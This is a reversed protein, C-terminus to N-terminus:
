KVGFVSKAQQINKINERPKLKKAANLIHEEALNQTRQDMQDFGALAKRANEDSSSLFNAYSRAGASDVETTSGDPLFVTEKGIGERSVKEAKVESWGQEQTTGALYALADGRGSNRYAAKASQKALGLDIDNAGAAKANALAREVLQGSGKGNESLYQAAALHSTAKNQHGATLMRTFQSQQTKSLGEGKSNKWLKMKNADGGTSAWAAVLDDDNGFMGMAEQADKRNQAQATLNRQAGFGGSNDNIKRNGWTRGNELYRRPDAKWRDSKYNGAKIRANRDAAQAENYKNYDSNKYKNGGWDSFNSGLGSLKTGIGGVGDISKKLLGPVTFLPVVLMTASVISGLFPHQSDSDSSSFVQGLIISAFTSAGFVVAVIPFLMLMTVLTDKWKNFWTVTNPLLFAVFALPSIVILIIIIAQRAVLIFLTMIIAVLAALLAPVAISLSGWAIAGGVLVITGGIISTWDSGSGLSTGAGPNAAAAPALGALFGKLSFGLINSLDVAIQCIYYSLNVLIAAIIIRPLLKKIGYNTIGVSTIQSFIIILFAIVFAVNAINRMTSWAEFTPQIDNGSSGKITGTFISTSTSLFNDSLITFSGDAIYALFNVVPCVIWGIVKIDCKSSTNSTDAVKPAPTFYQSLKQTEPIIIEVFSDSGKDYYFPDSCQSTSTLGNGICVKYEDSSQINYFTANLSLSILSSTGNDTNGTNTQTTLITGGATAQLSVTMPGYTGQSSVGSTNIKVAVNISHFTSTIDPNSYPTTTTWSPNSQANVLPSAIFSTIASSVTIIFAIGLLRSIRGTNLRNVNNSINRHSM